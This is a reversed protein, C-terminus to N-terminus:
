GDQQTQTEEVPAAFLNELYAEALALTDFTQHREWIEKTENEITAEKTYITGSFTPTTLEISDAKTKTDARTPKFQVKLFAEARYKKSGNIFMPVISGIGCFPAVDDVSKIVEGATTKTHGLLPAVISDDDANVTLDITADVFEKIIEAISDDAYLKAEAINLSVKSDIAKALKSAGTYNEDEDIISYVLNRYGTSAM